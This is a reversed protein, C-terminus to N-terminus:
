STRFIEQLAKKRFKFMEETQKKVTLNHVMEGLIGFPMKYYLLDRVLTGESTSEFEHIHHWMGFPGKRQNDVFRKKPEVETIETVWTLPIGFLPSVKYVLLMGPYVMEADPEFEHRFGMSDPTIKQLNKPNAFFSWVEELPAKILIEDKLRHVAM